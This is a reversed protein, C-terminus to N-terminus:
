YDMSTVLFSWTIVEGKPTFVFVRSSLLDGTVTDVFERSSMNGVFEEQWDRISKLWSVQVIIRVFFESLFISCGLCLNM